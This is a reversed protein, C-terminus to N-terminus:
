CISRRSSTATSCCTPCRCWRDVSCPATPRSRAPSSTECSSIRTTRTSSTRAATPSGSVRPRDTKDWIEWFKARERNDAGGIEKADKDVKYEAEQYADGSHRMFRKRAEARTLYSAAAVWTVERWNRSISHLFDRRDKFDICVKEHDYFGGNKGSEYRCWAVGRDILALDDRVLKM